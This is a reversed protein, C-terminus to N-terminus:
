CRPFLCHECGLSRRDLSCVHTRRWSLYFLLFFKRRLSLCLGPFAGHSSFCLRLSSQDSVSSSICQLPCLLVLLLGKVSSCSSPVLPLGQMSARGEWSSGGLCTLHQEPLSSVADRAPLRLGSSAFFAVELCHTLPPPHICPTSRPKQSCTGPHVSKFLSPCLHGKLCPESQGVWHLCCTVSLLSSIEQLERGEDRCLPRWPDTEM